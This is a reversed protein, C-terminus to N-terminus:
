ACAVGCVGVVMVRWRPWNAGALSCHVSGPTAAPARRRMHRITRHDHGVPPPRTYLTTSRPRRKDTLGRYPPPSISTYPKVTACDRHTRYAGM